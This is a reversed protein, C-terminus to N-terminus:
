FRQRRKRKLNYVFALIEAVIKYYLPPVDGGVESLKYLGQALPPNQIIPIYHREALRKIEQALIRKGKAVVKPATMANPSYKLAIAIHVPNTVVVDAGPVAGMQRGQSMQRAADKQRQKVQPDGELRKYEDKIEKKSMKLGKIFEYYQYMFDFISIVIYFLGVRIVVKMVISGTFAMVQWLTLQQALIVMFFEEQIAFYILSIVITMKLISKFLEVFQKLSVFKKMGEIPNLKNFDPTLPEFSLVFGTQLSEVILAVLLNAGFLPMLSLFFVDMSKQLVEGAINANFELPIYDFAEYSIGVLNQWIDAASSKLTLFAVILMLATTLDKSKAVQGKKRAERLKHPTPEETKEGSDEGM